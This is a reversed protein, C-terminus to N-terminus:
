QFKLAVGYKLDRRNNVDFNVGLSASLSSSVVSDASIAARSNNDLKFRLSLFPTADHQVGVRVYRTSDVEAAVALTQSLRSFYSATWVPAAAAAAGAFLGKGLLAVGLSAFKLTVDFSKVGSAQDLNAQAGAAVGVVHPLPLAVAVSGSAAVLNATADVTAQASEVFFRTSSKLSIASNVDKGNAGHSPSAFSFTQRIGRQSIFPFSFTLSSLSFFLKKREKRIDTNLM